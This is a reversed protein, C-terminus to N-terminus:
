EAGRGTDTGVRDWRRGTDILGFAFRWRVRREGDAGVSVRQVLSGGLGWESREPRNHIQVLRWLMDFKVGRDPDRDSHLVRFLPTLNRRVGASGPVLSAVPAPMQWSVSDPANREWLLLPWITSTRRYRQEDGRHAERDTALALFLRWSRSDADETQRILPWALYQATRGRNRDFGFLPWVRALRRQEGRGFVAIPWPMGTERYAPDERVRRHFFPWFVASYTDGPRTSRAFLPLVATQRTEPSRQWSVFPWIFFGSRSEGRRKGGYLPWVRNGRADPGRTWAFFPFLVHTTTVERRTVRLYLPFMVFRIEDIGFRHLVRGYLPFVATYAREPDPSTRSFYVPFLTTRNEQINGRPEDTRSLIQGVHSRARDNTRRNGAIPFAVDYGSRGERDRDFRSYFPRVAIGREGGSDWREVFPGAWATREVDRYHFPWIGFWGFGARSEGSGAAAALAPALLM